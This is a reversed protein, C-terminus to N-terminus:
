IKIFKQKTTFKRLNVFVHKKSWKYRKIAKCQFWKSLPQSHSVVAACSRFHNILVSIVPVCFLLLVHPRKTGSLLLKKPRDRLKSILDFARATSSIYIKMKVSNAGSPWNLLLTAMDTQTDTQAM